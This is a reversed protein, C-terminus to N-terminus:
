NNIEHRNYNNRRVIVSRVSPRTYETITIVGNSTTVMAGEGCRANGLDVAAAGARTKMVCESGESFADDAM